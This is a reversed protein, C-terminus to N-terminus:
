NQKSNGTYPLLALYRALEIDKKVMNQEKRKNGTSRRPQKAKMTSLNSSMLDLDLFSISTKKQNEKNTSTANNTKNFPFTNSSVIDEKAKKMKASVSKMNRVYEVSVDGVFTNFTKKPDAISKVVKIEENKESKNKKAFSLEIKSLSGKECMFTLDSM